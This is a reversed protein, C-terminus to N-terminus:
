PLCPASRQHPLHPAATLAGVADSRIAPHAGQAGAAGLLLIVRDGPKTAFEMGSGCILPSVALEGRHHPKDQAYRCDLERSGVGMGFLTGVPLARFTLTAWIGDDRPEPACSIEAVIATRTRTRALVTGLREFVLQRAPGASAAVCCLALAQWLLAHVSPPRRRM